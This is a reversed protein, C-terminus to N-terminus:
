IYKRNYILYFGAIVPAMLGISLAKANHGAAIIIFFYSSLTIAISGIMSLWINIKFSRMLIFFGFFYLVIVGIILSFQTIGLSTIMSIPALYQGSAIKGGGIQYTPMGSFMSGTWWSYNGTEENYVKNEQYMGQWSKTDGASIIKGDLIPSCYVFALIIFTIIIVLYIAIKKLLDKKM